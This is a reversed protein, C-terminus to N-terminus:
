RQKLREALTTALKPKIAPETGILWQYDESTL